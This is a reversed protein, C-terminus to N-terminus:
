VYYWDNFELNLAREIIRPDISFEPYADYFEKTSIVRNAAEADAIANANSGITCPKSNFKYFIGNNHYAETYNPKGEEMIEFLIDRNREGLLHRGGIIRFIYKSLKQSKNHFKVKM